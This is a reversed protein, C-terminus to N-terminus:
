SLSITGEKRAKRYAAPDGQALKAISDSGGTKNSKTSGGMGGTGEGEFLNLFQDLERMRKVAASVALDLTVPKDDKDIDNFKVMPVLKGTKEGDDDLAEVLRTTPRLIAVVQATNFAKNPGSSAADVIAREITSDTYLTQWKTNSESLEEIQKAHAKKTKSTEKEALQAKTMMTEKLSEITTDLESREASTLSSKARQAELEELAKTLKDESKRRDQALMRNVDEQTFIKGDAHHKDAAAKDAAAKAAAAAAAAADDDGEYCLIFSNLDFSNM